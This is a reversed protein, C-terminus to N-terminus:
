AKYIVEIYRKDFFYLFERGILNAKYLKAAHCIAKVTDIRDQKKSMAIRM